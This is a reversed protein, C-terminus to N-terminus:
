SNNYVTAGRRLLLVLIHLITANIFKYKLVSAELLSKIKSFKYLILTHTPDLKQAMSWMNLNICLITIVTLKQQASYSKM